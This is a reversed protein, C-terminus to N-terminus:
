TLQRTYKDIIGLKRVTDPVADSTSPQTLAGLKHWVGLQWEEDIIHPEEGSSLYVAAWRFRMILGHNLHDTPPIFPAGGMYREVESMEAIRHAIREGPALHAGASTRVMKVARTVKDNWAAFAEPNIPSLEAFFIVNKAPTQGINKLWIKPWFSLCVDGSDSVYFRFLMDETEDIVLWPRITQESIKNAGQTERFTIWVLIVGIVSLGMGMVAAAGMILTWLASQRQAVLDRENREYNRQEHRAQATCDQQYVPPLSLCSQRIKKDTYAAYERAHGNAEREYETSQWLGCSIVAVAILTAVIIGAVLRIKTHDGRNSGGMVAGM